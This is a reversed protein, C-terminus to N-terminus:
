RSVEQAAERAISLDARGAARLGADAELWGRRFAPEEHLVHHWDLLGGRLRWLMGEVEFPDIARLEACQEPTLDALTALTRIAEEGAPDPGPHAAEIAAVRKRMPNM